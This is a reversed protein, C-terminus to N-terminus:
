TRLLQEQSALNTLENRKQSNKTPYRRYYSATHIIHDKGTISEEFAKWSDVNKNGISKQEAEILWFVQKILEQFGFKGSEFLPIFEKTFAKILGELDEANTRIPFDDPNLAKGFILKYDPIKKVFRSTNARPRTSKGYRRGNKFEWLSLGAMGLQPRMVDKYKEYLSDIRKLLRNDNVITWTDIDSRENLERRIFSGGVYIAVINKRSINNLIIEKAKLVSNVAKKELDTKKEWVDWFNTHIKNM